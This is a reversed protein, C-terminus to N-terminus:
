KKFSKELILEVFNKFNSGNLEAIKKIRLICSETLHIIKQKKNKM